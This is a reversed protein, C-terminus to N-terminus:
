AAAHRGAAGRDRGADRRRRGRHLGGGGDATAFTLDAGGLRPRQRPRRTGHPCGPVACPGGALGSPRRVRKGCRGRHAHLAPDHHHRNLLAQAIGLRQRMGGSFTGVKKRAGDRLNVMELVAEIRARRGRRLGSLLALYDLHEYATLRPHFGFEQPLYGLLHRIAAREARVDHGAVTARGSSPEALTALIRLLTSKGAGNPGLLGFIGGGISLTIGDLAPRAGRGYSKTLGEIVIM